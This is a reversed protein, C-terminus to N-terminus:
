LFILFGFFHLFESFSEFYNKSYFLGASKSCSDIVGSKYLNWYLRQSTINTYFYYDFKKISDCQYLYEPNDTHALDGSCSSENYDVRITWDVNSLGDIFPCYGQGASSGTVGKCLCPKKKHLKGSYKFYYLCNMGIECEYGSDILSEDSEDSRVELADCVGDNLFYSLCFKEDTANEGLGLSFLKVCVGSNCGSGAPCEDDKQCFDGLDVYDKCVQDCYLGASCEGSESCAEGSKKGECIDESCKSTLCNSDTCCPWGAPNKGTGWLQFCKIEEEEECKRDTFDGEDSLDSSKIPCSFGSSCKSIKINSNSVKICYPSITSDCIIETCYESDLSFVQFLLFIIM